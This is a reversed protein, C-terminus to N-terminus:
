LAERSADLMHLSILCSRLLKGPLLELSLYYVWKAEQDFNRRWTEIRSASLQGRLFYALAYFWDQKTAFAPDRGLQEILCRALEDKIAERDMLPPSTEHTEAVGAPHLTM